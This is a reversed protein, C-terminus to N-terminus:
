IPEVSFTNIYVHTHFLDHLQSPPPVPPTPLLSFLAFVTGM